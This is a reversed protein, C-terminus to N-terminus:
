LAKEDNSIFTVSFTIGVFLLGPYGEDPAKGEVPTIAERRSKPDGVKRFNIM